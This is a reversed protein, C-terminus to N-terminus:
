KRVVWAKIKDVVQQETGNFGHYGFARCPDGTANGGEISFLETGYSEASSKASRYPTLRCGDDVHHVLLQRSKLNATDFWDVQSMSGTHIFGAVRGDMSKSLRMTSLTSMSTGMIFIPINGYRRQLDDVITQMREASPSANTSAVVADTGAFLERSRILFNDGADFALKGSSDLRPNIIGDNGPMVVFAYKPKAANGTLMYPVVEGDAYQATSILQDASFVTAPAFLLVALIYKLNM